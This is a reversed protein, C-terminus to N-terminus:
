FTYKIKIRGTHGIFDPRWDLDYNLFLKWSNLNMDFGIGTQIGFPNVSKGIIQYNSNQTSVLALRDSSIIDYSLDVHANPIFVTASSVYKAGTILTFINTDKVSIKQNLSDIYDKQSINLYRTGISLDVTKTIDYGLKGNLGITTTDYESTIGYEAHEDYSTMGYSLTGSIHWPRSPKNSDANANPLRYDAYTFITHGTADINRDGATASTNNFAYGLGLILNNNFKKDAGLTFGFTDGTFGSKGSLISHNLLYQGWISIGRATDGGSRGVSALRASVQNNISSNVTRSTESVVEADTPATNTLIRLYENIDYQSSIDLLEQMRQVTMDSPNVINNWATAVSLLNLANDNEELFEELTKTLTIQFTHNTEDFNITYRGNQLVNINTNDGWSAADIITLNGTSEGKALNNEHIIFLTKANDGITINDAIIKGGTYEISDKSIDNITMNIYGNINLNSAHVTENEINWVGNMDINGINSSYLVANNGIITQGTGSINNYLTGGTIELIGNNTIDPANLLWNADAQVSGSIVINGTGTINSNLTGGTLYISGNNQLTQINGLGNALTTLSSNESINFENQEIIQNDALYADTYGMLNFTGNGRVSQLHLTTPSDYTGNITSITGDNYIGDSATLFNVNGALNIIGSNYIAGGKGYEIIINGEQMHDGRYTNGSFNGTISNITGSNFIAGGKLFASNNNFNANISEITGRNHIAGGYTHYQEIGEFRADNNNFDGAISSITGYNWIAGGEFTAINNTFDGAISNIAGYNYIAGGYSGGGNEPSEAQSRNNTFNGVISDIVGTAGNNIAGGFASAYNDNFDGTISNISWLNIIAGGASGINRNFDGTISGVIGGTYIASGINDNFNGTISNITGGTNYIAGGVDAMNSDFNGTISDIVGGNSYIAGGFGFAVNPRITNITKNNIFNGSITGIQGYNSIAGGFGGYYDSNLGSIANDIFNGSINGIQGDNYIAGGQAVSYMNTDENTIRIVNRIFDGTISNITGGMGYYGNYIAGGLAIEGGPNVVNVTNEFFDGTISGIFSNNSIAGGAGYHNVASIVNNSFNGTISDIIGEGFGYMDFNCIAGGLRDSNNNVFDGTITGMTGSNYIAGGDIATNNIFNGTISEINALEYFRYGFLDFNYIAGGYSYEASNDANNIFNGNIANIIGYTNSVAGGGYGFIVNDVSNDIFDGSVLPITEEQYFELRNNTPQLTNYYFNNTTVNGDNDVTLYSISGNEQATTSFIDADLSTKYQTLNPATLKYYNNEGNEITQFVPANINQSKATNYVDQSIQEVSYSHSRLNADTITPVYGMVIAPYIFTLMAVCSVKKM